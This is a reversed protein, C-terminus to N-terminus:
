RSQVGERRSRALQTAREFTQGACEMCYNKGCVVCTRQMPAVHGKRCVAFRMAMLNPVHETCKNTAM